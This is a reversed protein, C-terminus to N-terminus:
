KRGRVIKTKKIINNLTTLCSIFATNQIALFSFIQLPMLETSSKTQMLIYNRECDSINEENWVVSKPCYEATISIIVEKM